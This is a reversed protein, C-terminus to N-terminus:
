SHQRKCPANPLGSVPPMRRSGRVCFAKLALSYREINPMQEFAITEGYGEGPKMFQIIAVHLGWGSARLALGFAATSKGKGNGTYVEILGQNEM